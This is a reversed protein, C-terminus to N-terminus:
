SNRSDRKSIWDIVLAQDKEDLNNRWERKANRIKFRTNKSSNSNSM